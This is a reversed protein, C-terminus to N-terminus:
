TSIKQLVRLQPLLHIKSKNAQEKGGIPNGQGGEADPSKGQRIANQKTTNFFHVRDV